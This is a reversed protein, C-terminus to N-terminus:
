AFTRQILDQTLQNVVSLVKSSGQYHQQAIILNSLQTPMDVNSGELTGSAFSGAGETLAEKLNISGSANSAAFVNGYYPTLGNINPFDAIPIQYIQRTEGNSFSANIFGNSDIDISSLDGSSVGNQSVVNTTYTGSAESLGTASGISGIDLSIINQNAGVIPSWTIVLEGSALSALQTSVTTNNLGLSTGINEPNHLGGSFGSGDSDGGFSMYYGSSAPEIKISYTGAIGGPLIQATLGTSASSASTTNIQDALEFLSQFANAHIENAPILDLQGAFLVGGANATSIDFTTNLTTPTIIIYEEGTHGDQQIAASLLGPFNANIQSVVNELVADNTAYTGAAGRTITGTTISTGGVIVSITFADAANNTGTGSVLDTSAAAYETGNYTMLGLSTAFNTNTTTSSFDLATLISAGTVTETLTMPLTPNVSTLLLHSHSTADTVISATLVGSGAANLQSALNAMVAADNVGNGRTATYSIGNITATISDTTNVADVLTTGTNLKAMSLESTPNSVQAYSSALTIDNSRIDLHYIRNIDDYYLESRLADNASITSTNNVQDVLDRMVELNTAGTGRTFTFTTLGNTITFTDTALNGNVGAVLDTNAGNFTASSTYGKGYYFTFPAPGTGTSDILSITFEQNDVAGLAVTPDNIIRTSESSQTTGNISQLQGSGDFTVSGAMLLGDTRNGVASVENSDIDYVEVAWDGTGVKLFAILLNHPAGKSDYVTFDQTHHATFVGGAMNNNPDYPNYSSQLYGGEPSLGFEQLFNSGRNLPNFNNIYIANSSNIDIASGIGESEVLTSTAGVTTLVEQLDSISAFRGAEASGSIAVFAQTNSSATFGLNNNFDNSGGFTMGLNINSPAIILESQTGLNVVRARLSQDGVTNNIQDSLGNLADLNNTYSGRTFTYTIGSVTVTLTDSAPGVLDADTNTFILSTAFGDYRIRSTVNNIIVEFGETQTLSNTPNAYLLDTGQNMANYVSPHTATNLVKLTQLAGAVVAQDSSLTLSLDVNTTSTAQSILSDINVAELSTKDPIDTTANMPWAMLAYGYPTVLINDANQRFSGDRTYYTGVVNNNSDLQAVPILGEGNIMIDTSIDTRLIQGETAVDLTTISTVGASGQGGDTIINIYSIEFEKYGRTDLNAINSSIINIENSVEQMSSLSAGIATTSGGM